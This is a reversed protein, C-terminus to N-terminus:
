SLTYLVKETKMKYNFRKFHSQKWIFSKTSCIVSLSRDKLLFIHTKFTDFKKFCIDRQVFQFYVKVFQM